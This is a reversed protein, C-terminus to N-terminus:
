YTTAATLDKCNYPEYAAQSIQVTDQGKFPETLYLADDGVWSRTLMKGGNSLTFREVVHLRDSHKIGMNLYGPLFGVTDVVLTDGDWKGISHGARSPKIDKPHAAMNLYVTRSIDMFGYDIRITDRTQQIRNVHQDTTWDSFISTAMCNQSPSDEWKFGASAALGAASQKYQSAGGPPGGAMGDASGMGAVGVPPGMGDAIGAPAGMGAADMGASANPAQHPAVTVFGAPANTFDGYNIAESSALALAAPPTNGSKIAALVAASNTGNNVANLKQAAGWNGALNPKGDATREERKVEGKDASTLQEYREITRGDQFTITEAYCGHPERRAPAAVIYLQTGPKFMEATWGSRKLLAAARMECRWADVGGASNKVSLYVYSHPNVLEMKTIVGSIKITKTEDFQGSSGHHADALGATLLLLAALSMRFM